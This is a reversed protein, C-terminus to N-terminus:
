KKKKTSKKKEEKKEPGCVGCSGCTMKIVVKDFGLMNMNLLIKKDDAIFLHSRCGCDSCGFNLVPSFYNSLAKATICEFRRGAKKYFVKEVKVNNDMLLYDIHWHIKKTKSIHRNVRKELNNQSSGIYAYSGKPFKLLGLKGVKVSIDSLVKFVLVYIGKM